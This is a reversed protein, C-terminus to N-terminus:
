PAKWLVKGGKDFLVLTSLPRQINVENPAELTTRGLSVRTVGQEELALGTDNGGVVWFARHQPPQEESAAKEYTKLGEEKTKALAMMKVKEITQRWKEEHTQNTSDMAIVAKGKEAFGVTMGISSTTDGDALQLAGGGGSESPLLALTAREFGDPGYLHLGWQLSGLGVYKFKQLGPAIALDPSGLIALVKNDPSKVIFAQAEVVKFQDRSTQGM